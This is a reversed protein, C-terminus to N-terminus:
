SASNVGYCGCSDVAGGSVTDLDEPSLSEVDLTGQNLNEIEESEPKKQNEEM